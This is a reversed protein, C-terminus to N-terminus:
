WMPGRLELGQVRFEYRKLCFTLQKGGGAPWLETRHL